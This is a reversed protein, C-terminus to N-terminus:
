LFSILSFLGYSVAGHLARMGLLKVPRISEDVFLLNQLWISLGGFSCLACLLACPPQAFASIVAKAGGGIELVAYLVAFVPGPLRFLQQLVGALASFLMMAGCVALLSRASQIIAEPLTVREQACGEAAQARDDAPVREWLLAAVAAGLWHAGLMIWAASKCNMWGALTGTFFMPSMVGTLALLREFHRQSMGGKRMGEARQASAPSGALFGFMVASLPFRSGKGMHSSPLLRCLVMMPFLAPMVGSAFTQAAARASQMAADSFLLLMVACLAAALTRM